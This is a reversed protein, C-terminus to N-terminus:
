VNMEKKNGAATDVELGCFLMNESHRHTLVYWFSHTLTNTRSSKGIESKRAGCTRVRSPASLPLFQSVCFPCSTRCCPPLTPTPSVCRFGVNMILVPKCSCPRKRTEARIGGGWDGCTPVRSKHQFSISCIYTVHESSGPPLSLPLPQRGRPALSSGVRQTANLCREDSTFTQPCHM